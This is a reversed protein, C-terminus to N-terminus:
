QAFACGAVSSSLGIMLLAALIAFQGM